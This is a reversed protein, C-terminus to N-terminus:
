AIAARYTSYIDGPLPKSLRWTIAMPREGKHDVYTGFGACFYPTTRSNLDKRTPRIFLAVRSGRAVHNIYRQGTPSTKATASQSEWHFITDSIAYDNYRTTPSYDKESKNLTIFFLDTESEEHWYVGAVLPLPASVSSAGYAALVEDRSYTGHVQLPIPFDADLPEHLHTTSGALLALLECIESLLDPHRWLEILADQAAPYTGKRPGLLSLLLGQIQRAQRVGLNAFSPPQDQQLLIRYSTLREQDDVHLIRGIGRSIKVEGDRAAGTLHGAARRLETWSHNGRYVDTLDLGTEHLFAALDVNGLEKLERIRQPWTTPLANRINSLVIEKSIPDLHFQCGAPLFPFDHQIDEELERRTRGLMRRYRLDFRFDQHQHGVFDLVTLVDKGSAKRLGRGLQQLFVTASETPRLMLIVDIAPIDVGENFLDVTFIVQIQGSTLDTLAQERNERRSRSTIARATIGADRFRRAMFEAHDISVCFGLARMSKPDGVKERVENLVRSAWLDNATYLNTLESTSYAGNRWAVRSLDTNDHIGYYHFPALLDQELADWLRLEVAIRGGFWQLIDLGDAREPTATLGVLHRPALYNLLSEYSKAAAHHFEDVIIVDFHSPSLRFIESASISQISAFVHGWQHPQKGGVWLEGFSSDRLVHRFINLSQELIETRHAVFLLRSRDLQEALRRFDLASVITKGTGTAAVVLTNDHGSRRALELQDLMQRQFPYPRIEFPALSTIDSSSSKTAELFRESDLSEFHDDAWYTEFTRDFTEVLEPNRTKSARVNWELGTVQASFTLNSSGIYVTSFGSERHFHWAKAHLRTSTTDYSVKVEAGLAELAELARLETSNTYVTTVIRVAKGSETHRRLLPLLDRIGTWRIFALVVDIRDASAIEARLERGINPQNRANTLLATDRIPTLPRPIVIPEGTPSVQQIATLRTIPDVPASGHGTSNVSGLVAKVIGHALAAQDPTSSRSLEDRIWASVLDAILDPLDEATVSDIALEFGSERISEAQEYLFYDALQDYIGARFEVSRFSICRDGFSGVLGRM